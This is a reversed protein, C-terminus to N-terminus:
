DSAALREITELVQAVRFPKAIYGDAGYRAAAEQDVNAATLLVIPATGGHERYARCFDGGGMRPMSLDIVILGLLRSRALALAAEGDVAQVVEYGERTLMAELIRRMGADDDVILIAPRDPRLDDAM